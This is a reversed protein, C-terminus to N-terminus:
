FRRAWRFSPSRSLPPDFRRFNSPPHCNQNKPPGTIQGKEISTRCFFGWNPPWFDLSQLSLKRPSNGGGRVNPVNQGGRDRDWRFAALARLGKRVEVHVSHYVFSRWGRSGFRLSCCLSPPCIETNQPLHSPWCMSTIRIAAVVRALSEAIVIAFIRAFKAFSHGLMDWLLPDYPLLFEKFILSCLWCSRWASQREYAM